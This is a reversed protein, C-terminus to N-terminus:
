ENFRNVNMIIEKASGECVGFEPHYEFYVDVSCVDEYQDEANVFSSEITVEDSYLPFFPVKYQEFQDSAWSDNFRVIFSKAMQLAPVYENGVFMLTMTIQSRSRFIKHRGRYYSENSSLRNEDVINMLIYPVKPTSVRNGRGQIITLETGKIPIAKKIFKGVLNYMEKYSLTYLESFEGDKPAVVMVKVHKNDKKSM